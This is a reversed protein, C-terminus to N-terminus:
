FEYLAEPTICYNLPIDYENVDDIKEVPPFYSFGLKIVNKRCSPLYRDYYGKGFGVRYGNKDFALLPVIVLDLLAPAIVESSLPEPIGYKNVQMSTNKGTICANISVTAPNIVPLAKNISANRHQLIEDLASPDFEKKESFAAYSLYNNIEPLKIQLFGHILKRNMAKWEKEPLEM